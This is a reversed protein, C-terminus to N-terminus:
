GYLGDPSSTGGSQTKKKNLREIALVVDKHTVTDRNSRIAIMGAEVCTAKLEAGSYGETAKSISDVRVGKCNMSSM